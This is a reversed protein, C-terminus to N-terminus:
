ANCVEKSYENNKVINNNIQQKFNLIQSNLSENQIKYENLEDFLSKLETKKSDLANQLNRIEVKNLDEIHNNAAAKSLQQKLQEIQLNFQEIDYKYRNLEDESIKLDTRLKQNEAKCSDLDLNIISLNISIKINRQIYPSVLRTLM